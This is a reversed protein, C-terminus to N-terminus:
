AKKGPKWAPIERKKLNGWFQNGRKNGLQLKAVLSTFFRSFCEGLAPQRSSIILTQKLNNLNWLARVGAREWPSLPYKTCL